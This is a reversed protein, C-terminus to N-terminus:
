NAEGSRIIRAPVGVATCNRPVDRLVVANAGICAHSGIRVAGLVKAGPGIDVHGEIVPAQDTGNTGITVQQLIMCNPGIVAAPHIVIGNPHPMFLGGAIQSNLPIDAGSIVSWLRHRTVALAKLPWAHVGRTRHRQYARISGLLRKGPNWELFRLSERTWDPLEHSIDQTM